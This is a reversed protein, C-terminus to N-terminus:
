SQWLTQFIFNKCKFM